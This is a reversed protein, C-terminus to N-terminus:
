GKFLKVAEQEPVVLDSHDLLGVGDQYYPAEDTALIDVPVVFSM